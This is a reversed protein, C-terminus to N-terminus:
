KAGMSRLVKRVVMAKSITNDLLKMQNVLEGVPTVYEQVGKNSKIRLNKFGQRLAQLKVEMIKPDGQYQRKLRNWADMSTEAAEIQSFLSQNM